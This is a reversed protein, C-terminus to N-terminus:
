ANGNGRCSRDEGRKWGVGRFRESWDQVRRSPLARAWDSGSGNIYDLNNEALLKYSKCSSPRPGDFHGLHIRPIYLRHGQVRIMWPCFALNESPSPGPCPGPPPTYPICVRSFATGPSPIRGGPATSHSTLHVGGGTVSARPRRANPLTHRARERRSAGSTAPLAASRHKPARPHRRGRPTVTWASAQRPGPTM